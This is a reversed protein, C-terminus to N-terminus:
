GGYRARTEAVLAANSAARRGDPLTLVDEFGVRIDRGRAVAQDLVAWTAPGVGHHLRGTPIAAADLAADLEAASALAEAADESRPEVLIRRVPKHRRGSGRAGRGWQDVLGSAALAEVDGATWVGAEIGIGREALLLALEPWGEESLNVSVLDPRETWGAIARTRADVDGATIWLGTSLSLEARPVALRLAHVAAAVDAPELSEAGDGDRAHVHISAAGAAVCEAADRALEEPTRPVGPDDRDGNLCAQLVM